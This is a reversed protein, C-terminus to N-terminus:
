GGLHRAVLQPLERTNIPKTVYDDCGAALAQAKDTPMAYSTVAVIPIDRTVPDAKLRRALEFGDIDPLQLDLLILDPRRQELAQLAQTADGATEVVHGYARLLHVLLEANIPNDEVVLLRKNM